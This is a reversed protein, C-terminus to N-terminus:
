RKLADTYRAKLNAHEGVDQRTIEGGENFLTLRCVMFNKEPLQEYEDQWGMGVVTNLRDIVLAKDIYAIVLGGTPAATKAGFQAQFKWRIAEATFPRRLEALYSHMPM